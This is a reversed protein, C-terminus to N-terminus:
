GLARHCRGLLGGWITASGTACRAESLAGYCALPTAAIARPPRISDAFCTFAPTPVSLLGGYASALRSKRSGLWAISAPLDESIRM